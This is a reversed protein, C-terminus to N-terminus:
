RNAPPHPGAVVLDPQLSAIDPAGALAMALRLQATLEGLVRQVGDAGAVTLGWMLPRGVLVARAGLALAKLVDTGRRIGGDVYVEVQDGVADVVEAVADATAVVGDLQRGGHNSVVVASAGADVCRRADDGRLVGKAMVPLGSTTALWELDEPGLVPSQEGGARLSRALSADNVAQLDLPVDFRNRADRARRGLVPTDVTLVLASFGAAVARGILAETRDRDRLLYVQFWAPGAAAAVDEVPCSARTSVVMLSGAAACGKAMALEGEPHALRQFAIPAALIPTRVSRGLVTTATSVASVDRLVRPRLRLRSWAAVNDALTIEDDAGGAIYDYVGVELRQRALAEVSDLDFAAVGTAM